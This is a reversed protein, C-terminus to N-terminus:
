RYAENWGLGDIFAEFSPAVFERGLPDHHWICVSGDALDIFFPDGGQDIAFPLASPGLIPRWDRIADGLSNQGVGIFFFWGIGHEDGDPTIFTDLRPHGGNSFALLQRLARPLELGAVRAFEDFEAEGLPPPTKGETIGLERLDRM